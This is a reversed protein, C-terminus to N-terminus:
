QNGLSDFSGIIAWRQIITVSCFYVFIELPEDKSQLSEFSFYYHVASLFIRLLFEEVAAWTHVTGLHHLLHPPLLTSAATEIARLHHLHHHRHIAPGSLFLFLSGLFFLLDLLFCSIM